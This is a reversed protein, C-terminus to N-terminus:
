KVELSNRTACPFTLHHLVAAAPFHFSEPAKPAKASSSLESASLSSLYAQCICIKWSDPRKAATMKTSFRTKHSPLNHMPTRGRRWSEKQEEHRLMGQVRAKEGSRNPGDDKGEQM